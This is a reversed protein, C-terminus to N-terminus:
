ELTTDVRYNLLELLQPLPIYNSLKEESNSNIWDSKPIDFNWEDFDKVISPSIKEISDEKPLDFGFREFIRLGKMAVFINNLAAPYINRNCNEAKKNVGPETFIKSGYKVIEILTKENNTVHIAKQGM